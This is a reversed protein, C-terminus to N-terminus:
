MVSLLSVAFRLVYRIIETFDRIFAANKRNRWIAFTVKQTDVTKKDAKFVDVPEGNFLTQNSQAM